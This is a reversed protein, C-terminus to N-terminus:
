GAICQVAASVGSPVGFMPLSQRRARFPLPQRAIQDFGSVGEFACYTNLPQDNAQVYLYVKSWVEPEFLRYYGKEDTWTTSRAEGFCSDKRLEIKAHQIAKGELTLFGVIEVNYAPPVQIAHANVVAFLISCGILFRIWRKMKM